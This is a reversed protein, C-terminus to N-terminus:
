KKKRTSKKKRNECEAKKKDTVDPSLFSPQGTSEMVSLWLRGCLGINKRQSIAAKIPIHCYVGHWISVLMATKGAMAAHAANQGLTGCFLDDHTNSPVSRILYSPDIYKLTLPIDQETFYKTIREKLYVGIDKLRVNGSLDTEVVGDELYRQGAGEAVVIVAHGKRTIREKLVELFGHPGDLEFDAEPILVYNVDRQAVTATAAIFGSHRGMLKVLGIGNPASKAEVHASRIAKTAEEVATDFGFSQAVFSIDNDITKPVGIVAIKLNRAEVEEHIKQAARLSGDGGIVYLQNINMREIADVIEEISQEGRSTGLMTGGQEHIASVVDPNLDIVDWGYEPIFGQLGFRFGCINKVGYVHHLSMVIARIVNNLGPCLGGCTVIGAKVKKPDFYIKEGPGAIDLTIKDDGEWSDTYPYFFVERSTKAYTLQPTPFDIKPTGLSKVNFDDQCISKESM